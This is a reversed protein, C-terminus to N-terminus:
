RGEGTEVETFEPVLEFGESEAFRAVAARQADIGLGPKGQERAALLANPKPQARARAEPSHLAASMRQRFEPESGWKARLAAAVNAVHEPSKPVGRKAASMKAKTVRSHTRNRAAAALKERTEASLPRGRAAM